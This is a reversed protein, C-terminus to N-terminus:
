EKLNNVKVLNDIRKELKDIRKELNDIRKELKDIRKELNDIRKEILDLKDLIIDFKSHGKGTLKFNCQQNLMNPNNLIEIVKKITM